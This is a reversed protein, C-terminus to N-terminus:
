EGKEMNTAVNKDTTNVINKDTTKDMNNAINRRNEAQLWRSFMMGAVFLSVVSILAFIGFLTKDPEYLNAIIATFYLLCVFCLMTISRYNERGLGPLFLLLPLVAIILLVPATGSLLGDGFLSIILAVYSIWTSIRAVRLNRTLDNFVSLPM